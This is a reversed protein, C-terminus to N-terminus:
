YASLYEAMVNIYIRKVEIDVDDAMRQAFPTGQTLYLKGSDFAIIKHGYEGIYQAIEDAKQSVAAWSSSRYWLSADLVLTDGIAGTSVNYTIYPMAADAPVSRQDYAPLDFSSWFSQLAQAKDM